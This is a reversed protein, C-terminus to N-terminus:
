CHNDMAYIKNALAFYRRNREIHTAIKKMKANDDIYQKTFKVTDDQSADDVYILKYKSYNLQSVSDLFRKQKDDKMNNRGVAVICM